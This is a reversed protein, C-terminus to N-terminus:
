HPAKGDARAARWTATRAEVYHDYDSPTQQDALLPASRLESLPVPLHSTLQADIQQIHSV